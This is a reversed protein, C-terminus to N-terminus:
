NVADAANNSVVITKNVKYFEITIRPRANKMAESLATTATIFDGKFSANSEIAYDYNSNWVLTWDTDDSWRQLTSRLYYGSVVYYVGEVYGPETIAGDYPMWGDKDVGKGSGSARAEQPAEYPVMTFGGSGGTAAVRTPAPPTPKAVAPEARHSKAPVSASAAYPRSARTPAKEILVTTSGYAAKMGKKSLASSLSSKWDSAAGFSIATSTSVGDGYEVSWGDPVIEGVAASLPIDRGFGQYEAQSVATTTLFALAAVGLVGGIRSKLNTM